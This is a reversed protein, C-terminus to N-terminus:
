FITFRCNKKNFNTKFALCNLPLVSHLFNFFLFIFWTAFDWVENNMFCYLISLFVGQYFVLFTNLISLILNIIWNKPEDHYVEFVHTIGLLPLLLVAAKASKRFIIILFILKLFDILRMLILKVKNARRWQKSQQTQAKNSTNQDRQGFLM